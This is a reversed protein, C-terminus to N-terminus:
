NLRKFGTHCIEGEISDEIEKLNMKSIKHILKELHELYDEIIKVSHATSAYFLNSAIYGKKLMEQSILTKVLYNIENDLLLVM